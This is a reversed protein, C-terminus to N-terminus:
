AFAGDLVGGWSQASLNFHLMASHNQGGRGLEIGRHKERCLFISFLTFLIHIHLNPLAPSSSQPYCPTPNVCGCACSAALCVPALITASKVSKKHGHCSLVVGAVLRWSM